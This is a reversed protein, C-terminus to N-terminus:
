ALHSPVCRYDWCKLPLPLLIVLELGTQAVFHSGTEVFFLAPNPSSCLRACVPVSVHACV